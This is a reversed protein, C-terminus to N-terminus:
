SPAPRRSGALVEPGKPPRGTLWTHLADTVAEPQEIPAMHGCDDIVVLEAGAIGDALEELVELPMIADDRAAVVLTRCRIKALHPRSDIRHIIANQQRAFAEKGVSHAMNAITGTLISNALHAATMQKALLTNIVADFDRGALALLRRRNETSETSDPRANTNLLALATVRGPAQRLIELAVYGGMSHGAIALPGEPAQELADRALQEMTDSRTLDAVVVSAAEALGAVQHAFGEADELLGPLMLLNTKTM